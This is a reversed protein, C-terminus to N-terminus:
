MLDYPSNGQLSYADNLPLMSVSQQNVNEDSLNFENSMGIAQYDGEDNLTYVVGEDDMVVSNGSEDCLGTDSLTSPDVYQADEFDDKLSTAFQTRGIDSVLAGMAGASASPMNFYNLAMSAVIGIGINAMLGTKVFFKPATYIAGGLAGGLSTQISKTMDFKKSGGSSLGTRRRRRVPAKSSPSRRVVGTVRRKRRKKIATM